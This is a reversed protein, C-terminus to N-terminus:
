DLADLAQASEKRLPNNKEKGIKKLLEVAKKEDGLSWYALALRYETKTFFISSTEIQNWKKIALENKKTRFDCLGAFYLLTDNKPNNILLQVFAQGAAGYDGTKFTSMANNLEVTNNAGMANPLGQEVIDFVYPNPKQIALYLISGSIILIAFVAAMKWSFQLRKKSELSRDFEALKSKLEETYSQSIGAVMLKRLTVKKQLTVDSNLIKLFKELEIEKLEGRLYKDIIESEEM